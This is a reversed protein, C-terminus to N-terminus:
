ARRLAAGNSLDTRVRAQLGVVKGEVTFFPCGSSGGYM